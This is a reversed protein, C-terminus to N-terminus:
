NRKGGKKSWERKNKFLDSGKKRKEASRNLKKSLLRKRDERSRRM